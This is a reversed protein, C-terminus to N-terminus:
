THECREAQATISINNNNHHHHHHNRHNRYHNRGHTFSCGDHVASVNLCKKGAAIGRVELFGSPTALQSDRVVHERHTSSHM